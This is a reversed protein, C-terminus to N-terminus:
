MSLVLYVEGGARQLVLKPKSNMILRYLTPFNYRLYLVPHLFVKWVPDSFLISSSRQSVTFNVRSEQLDSRVVWDM